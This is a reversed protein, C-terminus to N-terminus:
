VIRLAVLSTGVATADITGAGLTASVNGFLTLADTTNATTYVVPPLSVVGYSHTLLTSVPLDVVVVEGVDAATNNTRRIKVTATEAVVTAGNYALLAQGWLLYTGAAAITIAPDTTGFDIAAATNTFAYATGAGYATQTTGQGSIDSMALQSVTVAAGASSQRLVQSAGGTASLDANTGGRGLALLGTWGLAIEVARLLASGPTGSLTATVNTDNVRTLAAGSSVDSAPISTVTSPVAIGLAQTIKLYGSALLGLNRTNTLDTNATWTVYPGDSPAAETAIEQQISLLYRDWEEKPAGPAPQPLSTAM